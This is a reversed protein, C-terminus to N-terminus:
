PPFWSPHSPQMSTMSIYDPGPFHQTLIARPIDPFFYEGDIDHGRDYCDGQAAFAKSSTELAAQQEDADADRYARM